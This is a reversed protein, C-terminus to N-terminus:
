QFPKALFKMKRAKFVYVHRMCVVWTDRDDITIDHYSTHISHDEKKYLFLVSTVDIRIKVDLVKEKMGRGNRKEHLFRSTRGHNILPIWHLANRLNDAQRNSGTVECDKIWPLFRKHVLSYNFSSFLVSVVFSLFRRLFHQENLISSSTPQFYTFLVKNRTVGM